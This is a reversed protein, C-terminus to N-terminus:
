RFREIAKLLRWKCEWDLNVGDLNYRELFSAVNKAFTVWNAQTVAQRFIMYTSPETSFAWGGISIVKKFNGKLALFDDFAFQIPSIDLEFDPTIAAFAMFVHTYSSLNLATIPANLCDRDYNFGEFYGINLYEAPVAGVIITTGCNSICGNSGIAATGPAGTPSESITCFISTTGCQGFRDCCSNLPCQNYTSINTGAPAVPTGPVQPGCIANPITAPM